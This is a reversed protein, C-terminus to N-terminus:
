ITFKQYFESVTPDNGSLNLGEVDRFIDRLVDALKDSKIDVMIESVQGKMTIIRRVVVAYRAVKQLSKDPKLTKVFRTQRDKRICCDTHHSVNTDCCSV